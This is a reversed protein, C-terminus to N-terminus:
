NTKIKTKGIHKTFTGSFIQDFITKSKQATILLPLENTRFDLEDRFIIPPIENKSFVKQISSTFLRKEIIEKEGNEIKYLEQIITVNKGDQSTGVALSEIDNTKAWMLYNIEKGESFALCKKEDAGKFLSPSIEEKVFEEGFKSEYGVNNITSLFEYNLNSTEIMSQKNINNPM